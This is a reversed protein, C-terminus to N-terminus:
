ALALSELGDRKPVDARVATAVKKDIALRAPTVVAATMFASQNGSSIGTLDKHGRITQVAHPRIPASTRGSQDGCVPPRGLRRRGARFLVVRDSWRGRSEETGRSSHCDLREGHAIRTRTLPV